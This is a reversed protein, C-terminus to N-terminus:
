IELNNQPSPYTVRIPRKTKDIVAFSTLKHEKVNTKSFIDLVKVGRAIEADAILSRHCQWPLAEACMIVTKKGIILQNLAKLGLYFEDSQMYDAYGRFASHHWGTNKSEKTTHRRGGLEPMHHYAIHLKKLSKSLNEKNFWPFMRSKPISRVDILQQIGHAVLMELFVEIERNSHGITYITAM